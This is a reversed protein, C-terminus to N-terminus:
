SSLQNFSSCDSRTMELAAYTSQPLDCWPLRISPELLYLQSNMVSRYRGVTQTGWDPQLDVFRNQAWPGAEVYGITALHSRQNDRRILKPPGVDQALHARLVIATAHTLVLRRWSLWCMSIKANGANQLGHTKLYRRRLLELLSRFLM